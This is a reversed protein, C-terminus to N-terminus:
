TQLSIEVAGTDFRNIIDLFRALDTDQIKFDIADFRELLQIQTCLVHVNDHEVEALLKM